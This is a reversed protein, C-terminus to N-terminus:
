EPTTTILSVLYDKLKRLTQEGPKGTEPLSFKKQYLKIAQETENDLNGSPTVSPKNGEAKQIQNIIKQYDLIEAKTITPEYEKGDSSVIMKCIKELAYLNMLSRMIYGFTSYELVGYLTRDKGMEKYVNSFESYISLYIRSLQKNSELFNEGLLSNIADVTSGFDNDDFMYFASFPNAQRNYSLILGTMAVFAEEKKSLQSALEREIRSAQAEFEEQTINGGEKISSEVASEIDNNSIFRKLLAFMDLFQKSEDILDQAMVPENSGLLIKMNPNSFSVYGHEELSIPEGNEYFTGQIAESAMGEADAVAKVINSLRIKKNLAQTFSYFKSFEKFSRENEKFYMEPYEFSMQATKSIFDSTTSSGELMATLEDADDPLSEKEGGFFLKFIEAFSAITPNISTLTIGEDTLRKKETELKGELEDVAEEQKNDQISKFFVASGYVVASLKMLFWVGKAFKSWIGSGSGKTDVIVKTPKSVDELNKKGNMTISKMLSKIFGEKGKEQVPKIVEDVLDAGPEVGRGFGTRYYRRKIPEYSSKRKAGKFFDDIPEASKRAAALKEMNRAKVADDLQDQAASIEDNFQNRLRRTPLDEVQPKLEDIKKQAAKVEKLYDVFKRSSERASNISAQDGKYYADVFKNVIEDSEKELEKRSAKSMSLWWSEKQVGIIESLSKEIKAIDDASAGVLKRAIGKFAGKGAKLLDEVNKGVSKSIFKLFPNVSAENIADINKSSDWDNFKRIM